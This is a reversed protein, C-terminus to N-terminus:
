PIKPALIAEDQPLLEENVDKSVKKDLAKSGFIHLRNLIKTPDQKTFSEYASIKRNGKPPLNQVM